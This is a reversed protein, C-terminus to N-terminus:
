SNEKTGDIKGYGYFDSINKIKKKVEDTYGYFEGVFHCVVIIPIGTGVATETIAHSIEAGDRELKSLFIAKVDEFRGRFNNCDM